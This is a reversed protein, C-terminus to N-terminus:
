WNTFADNFIREMIDDVIIEILGDRISQFDQTSDYDEFDSYNKTWSNDPNLEDIYEIKVAIDLRNLSTTNGEEPAVYNIRYRTVTGKFIIDPNENNNVLRSEERIKRRLAQGFIQNLDAPADGSSLSFDEVYFTNLDPSISIGKFSYCSSLSLTLLLFFKFQLTM